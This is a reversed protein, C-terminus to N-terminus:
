LEKVGNQQLRQVVADRQRPTLTRLKKDERIPVTSLLTRVRKPGWRSQSQILEMLDMSGCVYPEGLLVDIASITGDRIERKIEAHALRIYNAKALAEMHQSM